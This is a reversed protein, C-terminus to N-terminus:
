TQRAQTRMLKGGKIYWGEGNERKEQLDEWLKKNEEREKWTMDRSISIRKVWETNSQRINKINKFVEWKMQDEELVM